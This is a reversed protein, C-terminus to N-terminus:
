QARQLGLFLIDKVRNTEVRTAQTHTNNGEFTLSRTVVVQETKVNEIRYYMCVCMCEIGLYTKSNDIDM